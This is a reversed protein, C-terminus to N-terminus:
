DNKFIRYRNEIYRRHLIQAAAHASQHSVMQVYCEGTPHGKQNFVFHIGRPIIADSLNCFFDLIDDVTASFPLGRLRVCDDESRVIENSLESCLDNPFGKSSKANTDLGIINGFSNPM